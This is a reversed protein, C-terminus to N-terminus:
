TKLLLFILESFKFFYKLKGGKSVWLKVRLLEKAIMNKAMERVQFDEPQRLSKKKNGDKSGEMGWRGLVSRSALVVVDFSDM